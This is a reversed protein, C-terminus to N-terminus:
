TFESRAGEQQSTKRYRKAESLVKEKGVLFFASGQNARNSRQSSFPACPFGCAFFTPRSDVNCVGDHRYCYGKGEVLHQMQDFYHTPPFDASNALHFQRATKKVDCATEEVFHVIGIEQRWVSALTSESYLSSFQFHKCDQAVRPDPEKLAHTIAGTGSCATCVRVVEKQVLSPTGLVHHFAARVREPWPKADEEVRRAKQPTGGISKNSQVEASMSSQAGGLQLTAGESDCDSDVLDSARKVGKKTAESTTMM